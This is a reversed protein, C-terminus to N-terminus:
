SSKLRALGAKAKQHVGEYFPYGSVKLCKKFYFRALDNEGRQQYILALQLASNGLAYSPQGESTQLAQRFYKIAETENGMREEVRGLRYHYEVESAPGPCCEAPSKELLAERAELYRAADFLIRARVLLPNLPQNNERLAQRDAGTGTGGQSYVMERMKRAHERDGKLLYYWSLYRYTSKKYLDSQTRQLYTEFRAKAAENDIGLLTKGSMYYLYTFDLYEASSPKKELWSIAREPRGNQVEYLAQLYILFGSSAVDLGLQQPSNQANAGLQYDAYSYVFGAYPRYFDWRPDVSIQRYASQLLGMGQEVSGKFGLLSAMGQYEDPLSGIAAYMVGLPIYAPAFEPFRGHNETLLQYAKYFQWAATLNNKFKGNLIAQATYLEGLFLNRLPETEPLDEIRDIAEDIRDQQRGYAEQDENVFLEVCIMATTLYDAARNDPQAKKEELVLQRAELFRMEIILGFAKELSPTYRAYPQAAMGLGSILLFFLFINKMFFPIM